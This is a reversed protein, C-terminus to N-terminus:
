KKWFAPHFLIVFTYIELRGFLMCIVLLLKGLDPIVAFNMTPGVEVFGPGISNLTAATASMSTLMDFGMASIVVSVIAFIVVWLCFLGIINNVVNDEIVVKGLRIPRVAQPRFVREIQNFIYKFVIVWRIVKFSGSTSGACGGVFMLVFLILKSFGPWKDFDATGYGTTTQISVVQFLVDRFNKAINHSFNLTLDVMIFTTAIVIILIYSKFETDKWFINRQGTLFYHYLSFNVGALIMFIILVIEISISNFAAVSTNKTSYGGTALTGFTHCISDFITMGCCCLAVTEIVTLGIYIKLLIFATERIKPKLVETHPGPVESHFLARGGVGLHPLVIIFLVVIGLGGLWHTLSRWFLLSQPLAEIDSLVSAGTTTFGSVSEFLASLFTPIYGSIYFPLAGIIGSVIWIVSVLLLGERKTFQNQGTCEKTYKKSLTGLAITALAVWGFTNLMGWERAYIGWLMSPVFCCGFFVLYAGLTHIILKFNM